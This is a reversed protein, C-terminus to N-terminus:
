DIVFFSPAQPNNQEANSIVLKGRESYKDAIEQYGKLRMVASLSFLTEGVMRTAEASPNREAAFERLDLADSFYQAAATYYDNAKAADGESTANDGRTVYIQGLNSYSAATVSAARDYPRTIQVAWWLMREAVDLEGITQYMAALNNSDLAERLENRIEQKRRLDLVEQLLKIGEEREGNDFITKGIRSLSDMALASGIGQEAENRLAEIAVDDKHWGLAIIVHSYSARDGDSLMDILIQTAVQDDIVKLIDAAVMRELSTGKALLGVEQLVTSRHQSASLGDIAARYVPDQDNHRKSEDLLLRILIEPAENPDLKSYEEVFFTRVSPDRTTFIAEALEDSVDVEQSGVTLFQELAIRRLRDIDDTFATALAKAARRSGIGALSNIATLRLVQDDDKLAKKLPRVAAEGGLTGLAEAAGLRVALSNGRSALLKSVEKSAAKANLQGLSYVVALRVSESEDQLLQILHSILLERQFDSVKLSALAYVAYERIRENADSAATVSFFEMYRAGGVDALLSLTEIRVKEDEEKTEIISKLLALETPSFEYSDAYANLSEIQLLKLEVVDELQIQKLLPEIALVIKKESIVPLVAKRVEQQKHTIAAALVQHASGTDVSGLANVVGVLLATNDQSSESFIKKLGKVALDEPFTALAKVLGLRIDIKEDSSSALKVVLAQLLEVPQVNGKRAEGIASDYLYRFADIRFDDALSIDELDAVASEDLAPAAIVFAFPYPSYKKAAAQQLDMEFGPQAEDIDFRLQDLTLVPTVNNKLAKVIAAGFSLEGALDARNCAFLTKLKEGRLTFSTRSLGMTSSLRVFDSFSSKHCWEGFVVVTGFQGGGLSDIIRSLPLKEYRRDGNYTRLIPGIKANGAEIPAFLFVSVTDGYDSHNIRNYVADYVASTTAEKGELLVVHDDLYGYKSLLLSRLEEGDNVANPGDEVVDGEGLSVILAHNAPPKSQLQSIAASAVNAAVSFAFLVFFITRM